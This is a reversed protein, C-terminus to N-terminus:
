FKAPTQAFVHGCKLFEPTFPFSFKGARLNRETLIQPNFMGANETLKAGDL